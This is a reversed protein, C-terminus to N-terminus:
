SMAQAKDYIYDVIKEVTVLKVAEEQEIKAEFMEELEIVIAVVDMSEAGLDEVLHSSLQIQDEEVQGFMAETIASKVKVLIEEKTIM